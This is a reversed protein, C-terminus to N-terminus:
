EDNLALDSHEHIVYTNRGRKKADYMAEDAKKLMREPQFTSHRSLAIGISAGIHAERNAGIEIPRGVAEIIKGAILELAASSNYASILVIFEDGGMRGVLDTKRTLRRLVGAVSILVLDGADHGYNDNVQKFLDLDILMLALGTDSSRAGQRLRGAMRTEFGRRNLLGTLPDTMAVELASHEAKKRETIDNIVGQYLDDEIKSLTLHFWRSSKGDCTALKMDRQVPSDSRNCDDILARVRSDDNEFLVPISFRASRTNAVVPALMQHFAPNCSLLSGKTDLLFIGTAAHEFISRLKREEVEVERWLTREEELLDWLREILHNVYNVLEGLEDRDHGGLHALKEGHEAPLMRLAAALKRMPRTIFVYVIAIVAFGVAFTQISLLIGIFLSADTVSKAIEAHDPLVLIKGAQEAPDFPSAIKRSIADEPVSASSPQGGEQGRRQLVVLPGESDYIEVQRIIRNSLLGQAVEKALEKDSLFCAISASREVTDILELLKIQSRQTERQIALSNGFWLSILGVAGVLLLIWFTARFALSSSRLKRM